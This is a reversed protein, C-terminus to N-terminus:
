EEDKGLDCMLHRYKRTEPRHAPDAWYAERRQHNKKAAAAAEEMTKEHLLNFFEDFYLAKDSISAYSSKCVITFVGDASLSCVEAPDNYQNVGPIGLYYLDRSVAPVKVETGTQCLAPPLLDRSRFLELSGMRAAAQEHGYRAARCVWTVYADLSKRDQSDSPCAACLSDYVNDGTEYAALLEEAPASLNRRHWQALDWMAAIDGLCCLQVLAKYVPDSYDPHSVYIRPEGLSKEETRDAGTRKRYAQIEPDMPMESWLQRYKRNQPDHDPDAWYEERRQRNKAALQIAGAMNHTCLQNFFEDFFVDDYDDERGFGDSDAPIYSSLYYARYVGKQTLSHLGFEPYKNYVDLLGMHNLGYSSYPSSSFAGVQSTKRKLFGYDDLFYRDWVLKEAEEHGYRAAQWIWSIYYQLPYADDSRYPTLRVRLQSYNDEGAEFAALLQETSAQLNRRHWHALEWMAAIDGLSCLRALALYVPDYYDPRPCFGKPEPAHKLLKAAPKPAPTNVPETKRPPFLKSFMEKITM